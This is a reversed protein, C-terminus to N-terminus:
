FRWPWFQERSNVATGVSSFVYVSLFCLCIGRSLNAGVIGTVLRCFLVCQAGPLCRASVARLAGM